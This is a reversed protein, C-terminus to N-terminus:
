AIPLRGTKNFLCGSQVDKIMRQPWIVWKYVMLCTRDTQYGIQTDNFVHQSNLSNVNLEIDNYRSM